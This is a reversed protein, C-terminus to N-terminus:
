EEDDIAHRFGVRKDVGILMGLLLSLTVFLDVEMAVLYTYFTILSFCFKRFLRKWYKEEKKWTERPYEEIENVCAKLVNSFQITEISM